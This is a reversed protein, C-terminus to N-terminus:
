KKIQLYINEILKYYCVVLLKEISIERLLCFLSYEKLIYYILNVNAIYVQLGQDSESWSDFIVM